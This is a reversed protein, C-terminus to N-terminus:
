QHKTHNCNQNELRFKLFKKPNTNLYLYLGFVISWKASFFQPTLDKKRMKSIM